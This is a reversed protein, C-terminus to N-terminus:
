LGRCVRLYQLTINCAGTTQNRLKRWNPRAHAAVVFVHPLWFHWDWPLVDLSWPRRCRRKVCYRVTRCCYIYIDHWYRTFVITTHLSQRRHSSICLHCRFHRNFDSTILFLLPLQSLAISALCLRLLLFLLSLVLYLSLSWPPNCWWKILVSCLGYDQLIGPCRSLSLMSLHVNVDLNWHLNLTLNLTLNLQM